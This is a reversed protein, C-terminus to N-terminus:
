AHAASPEINAQVVRILDETLFPKQVFPYKPGNLKTAVAEPFGSVLVIRTSPRVEKIREAMEIGNLIPMIVDALVLDIAYPDALFAELGAAGDHAVMVQYGARALAATVARVMMPEDDVVLIM